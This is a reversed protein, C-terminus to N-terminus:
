TLPSGNPLAVAADDDLTITGDFSSSGGAAGRVFARRSFYGNNLLVAFHVDSSNPHTFNITEKVKRVFGISSGACGTPTASVWSNTDPIPLVGGTCTQSAPPCFSRRSPRPATGAM